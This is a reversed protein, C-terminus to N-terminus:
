LGLTVGWYVNRGAAAIFQPGADVYGFATYEADLLNNVRLELGVRGLGVAGAWAAPLPMRVQADVVTFADNVLPEYGPQERAAPDRRNDESNDLYFRGAHRAALTWALPGADGRLTLTALVDPYGAIRNGDYVAEVGPAWQEAYRTFTNRSLTLSADIGLRTSAGYSGELEVGRHLSRAGNGYVPVGSDDLAGAYVIENAFKMYFLNARARWTPRRVAAGAELDWVDEPDLSVPTGWYDQPDYITRFAPERMGRALSAYAEADRGLAVVAGLRPLLFTFTEDLEVGELEDDHMEYEHRTGQLGGTLSVRDSARWAATAQLSLTRKDVRYDYYRHDPEVGAPYHEAWRVEGVHHAEHLRAEGGLTWTWDGAAHTLKPVWGADWEDVTRRRVLDSRLAPSGDPLTGPPLDYEFLWRNEKYQEYYGDGSFHYFVQSLHTGPALEADHLLQVHPQTFTDLEGPWTLPNFRRDREPDGTLAGDLTSKPVGLYALHTNEPGGFLVLRLSSREFYRVLSIYYNWMDVWSQDRYGDTTVKSYRAALQWTGDILGSEFRASYRETGFSGGGAYLEFSPEVGGPDTTIDVAGGIGSLGFVGRQVQVDGATALFDALDVFFLEGSEADNLPAGNLTVRSRAQGFGRITFYSYGIGNGADNYAYFGPAVGALLMAPDQGWYAEQVREAPINSITAPDAGVRARTATVEVLDTFSVDPALRIEIPAAGPAALRERYVRYGPHSVVLTLGGAPAPLTFTGGATTVAAADTEVVEVRAGALPAGTQADVV